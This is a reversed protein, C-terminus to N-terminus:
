HTWRPSEAHYVKSLVEVESQLEQIRRERQQHKLGRNRFAKLDNRFASQKDLLQDREKEKSRYRMAEISIAEELEAIRIRAQGQEKFAAKISRELGDRTHLAAEFRHKVQQEERQVRRQMAQVRERSARITRQLRARLNAEHQEDRLRIRESPTAADQVSKTTEVPQRKQRVEAPTRSPVAQPSQPSRPSRAIFNSPTFPAAKVESAERRLNRIHARLLDNRQCLRRVLEEHTKLCNHLKEAVGEPLEALYDLMSFELPEEAETKASQRESIPDDQLSCADEDSDWMFFCEAGKRSKVPEETELDKARIENEVAQEVNEKGLSGEETLEAGLDSPAELDDDKAESADGLTADESLIAVQEQLSRKEEENITALNSGNEYSCGKQAVDVDELAEKHRKTYTTKVRCKDEWSGLNIRGPKVLSPGSTARGTLFSMARQKVKVSVHAEPQSQAQQPKEKEPQSSEGMRQRQRNLKSQLDGQHREQLNRPAHSAPSMSPNVPLDDEGMRLRQRRLKQLLEQNANM